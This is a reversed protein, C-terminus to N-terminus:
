IGWVWNRGNNVGSMVITGKDGSLFWCQYMVILEMSQQFESTKREHRWGPSGRM